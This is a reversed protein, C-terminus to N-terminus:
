RVLLFQRKYKYGLNLNFKNKVTNEHMIAVNYDMIISKQGSIIKQYFMPNDDISYFIIYDIIIFTKRFVIIM